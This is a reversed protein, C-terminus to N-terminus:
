VSEARIAGDKADIILHLIRFFIYSLGLTVYPFRLFSSQPLFTYKKLWVFGAIGALLLPLFLRRDGDGQLLRVSVFGFMLFAAFPVWSIPNLSFFGLFALSAVLLVLQRWRVARSLNYIIVVLLSFGLFELSASGM